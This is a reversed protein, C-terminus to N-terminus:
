EGRPDSEEPKGGLTRTIAAATARLPALFDRMRAPRLRLAPGVVALGAVVAGHSDRVPVSLSLCGAEVEGDTQLWGRARIRALDAAIRKPETITNATFRPLPQALVQAQVTEPAHALLLRGVGAHLPSILDPPVFRAMSPDPSAVLNPRAVVGAREYLHVVEGCGRALAELKPRLYHHLATQDSAAERLGGIRPGLRWAGRAGDQQAYGRAALTHLLRFATPRSCGAQAAAEALVIPGKHAIIELLALARDVGALTYDATPAAPTAPQSSPVPLSVTEPM